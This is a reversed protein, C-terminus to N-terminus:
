FLTGWLTPLHVVVTEHKSGAVNIILRPDTRVHFYPIQTLKGGERAVFVKSYANYSIPLALRTAGRCRVSFALQLTEFAAHSPGIVTCAVQSLSQAGSQHRHLQEYIREVNDISRGNANYVKPLFVDYFLAGGLYPPYITYGNFHQYDVYKPATFLRMPPFQGPEAFAKNEGSDPVSSFIPSLVVLSAFWLAALAWWLAKVPYRRMLDDAIVVVLIIGIPIIFALMLWPFSIVQLPSVLRYVDYSIRLQLFLYIALSVLLYAVVPIDIRRPLSFRQRRWLGRVAYAAVAVFAVAIPVWIAFDIQVVNLYNGALWHRTGDYFYSGFSVFNQSVEFGFLTVQNQPDYFKAFLLQALLLPALLLTAAAASVILRPAIARLGRFGAVIIFVVLAIGLTFLSTLAVGSHANVLLVIVPILLFSVRRYKVLNLCWYLLWPVIMLAAFEALDSRPDLWDTFVYNTFLFGVSCVTSLLRSNTVVSLALRMGYAGIVLFIGITIAVSAKLGGFTAYILGAIYFFARHYYLLVPSGMGLGDTSSWVPFFDHHRFHAAYIQVLLLPTTTGENLPWGSRRLVPSLILVAAGAVLAAYGVEYVWKRQAPSPRSGMAPSRGAQDALDALDAQM